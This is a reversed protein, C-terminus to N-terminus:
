ADYSLGLKKRISNYIRYMQVPIPYYRRLCEYDDWFQIQGHKRNERILWKIKQGVQKQYRSVDPVDPQEDMQKVQRLATELYNRLCFRYMAQDNRQAFFLLQEEKAALADLRKASWRSKTIGATNIYYFYLPMPVYAVHDCDFLLRYTVFEDEHIRGEPYKNEVFFTRDYLKACAITAAVHRQLYFADPKWIEYDPVEQPADPTEGSTEAFSCVSIHTKSEEAARLLVELMRSHIWDDSDVFTVWRSDSNALIWQLGANRAASLGGNPQHIVHIRSDKGAYDDCIAGSRDPSGDDVLILEFDEYTQALISDVCRHLYDEVKYVPVIVSIQPM